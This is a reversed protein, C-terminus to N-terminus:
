EFDEFVSAISAGGDHGTLQRYFLPVGRDAIVCQCVGYQLPRAPVGQWVRTQHIEGARGGFRVHVNGRMRSEVYEHRQRHHYWRGCM